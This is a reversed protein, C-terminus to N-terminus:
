ERKEQNHINRDVREDVYREDRLSRIQFRLEPDAHEEDGIEYQLKEQWFIFNMIQLGM